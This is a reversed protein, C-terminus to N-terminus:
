WIRGEVERKEQKWESMKWKEESFPTSRLFILWPM